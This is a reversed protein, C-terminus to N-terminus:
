RIRLRAVELVLLPKGDNGEDSVRSLIVDAV